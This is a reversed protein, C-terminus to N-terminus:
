RQDARLVWEELNRFFTIANPEVNGFRKELAYVESPVALFLFPQARYIREQCASWLQRADGPDLTNRAAEILSDVAADSYGSINMGGGGVASSHWFEKLDARTGVKWGMVCSDYEIKIIQQIFTNWELIRLDVKVGIEKLQAQVMTMIDIRQQSGHNAIMEFSFEEGNKELIGNNDRDSWGNEALVARARAPDHPLADMGADFAWLIPHMPSRCEEALGRWVTDIILRRDIAMGLARRIEASSFLDRTCNWSIFTMSRSPYTYIQLDDYEREIALADDPPISELCDIDGAKLQALLTVMDPVIKFVVRDINLKGRDYYGPNKEITLYQKSEWQLFRYPGNGVPRRSFECTRLQDRPIAGLIHKPLIVGDNADMLQYPYRNSFHFRVTYDDIAEVSIIREKLHRGSWSVLTDIQCEWTFTVDHATFPTGDHWLVDRRLNFTLALGDPSFNWSQALRPRFRLFDSEEDLLKLFMREIIDKAQTSSAYLPNLTGPDSLLGVVLTRDKDATDQAAAPSFLISCNFAALMPLLAALLVFATRSTAPKM